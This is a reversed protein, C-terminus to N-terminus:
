NSENSIHSLRRVSNKLVYKYRYCSFFLFATSSVIIVTVIIPIVWKGFIKWTGGENFEQLVPTMLEELSRNYANCLETFTLSINDIDLKFDRLSLNTNYNVLQTNAIPIAPSVIRTNDIQVSTVNEWYVFAINYRNLELISTLLNLDTCYSDRYKNNRVLIGTGLMKFEFTGSCKIKKAICTFNREQFCSIQDPFNRRPCIYKNNNRHCNSLLVPKFINLERDYYTYQAITYDACYDLKGLYKHVQVNNFLPYTNKDLVVPIIMVFHALNFDYDIETLSLKAVAYLLMPDSRYPTGDFINSGNVIKTLTIPDIMRKTLLKDNRGSLATWLINDIAQKYEAFLFELKFKYNILEQDCRLEQLVSDVLLELRKVLGIVNEQIKLMGSEVHQIENHLQRIEAEYCTVHNKIQQIQVETIGTLVGSLLASGVFSLIGRKQRHTNLSPIYGELIMRNAKLYKNKAYIMDNNVSAKDNFTTSDQHFRYHNKGNIWLSRSNRCDYFNLDELIKFVPLKIVISVIEEQNSLLVSGVHSVALGENASVYLKELTLSQRILWFLIGYFFPINIIIM